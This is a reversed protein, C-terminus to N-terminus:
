SGEPYVEVVIEEGGDEREGFVGLMMEPTEARDPNALLLALLVDGEEVSIPVTAGTPGALLYQLGPQNFLM